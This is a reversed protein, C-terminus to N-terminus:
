SVPALINRQKHVVEHALKGQRHVFANHLDRGSGHVLQLLLRPRAINAFQLVSYLAGHHDRLLRTQSLLIENEFRLRRCITAIPTLSQVFDLTRIDQPNELFAPVILAPGRLFQPNVADCKVVLELFVTPCPSGNFGSSAAGTAASRLLLPHVKARESIREAAKAESEKRFEERPARGRESKECQAGAIGNM